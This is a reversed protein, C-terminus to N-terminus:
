ICDSDILFACIANHTRLDEREPPENSVQTDASCRPSVWPSEHARAVSGLSLKSNPTQPIKQRSVEHICSLLPHHHHITVLTLDCNALIRWGGRAGGGKQDSKSGTAKARASIRVTTPVTKTFWPQQIVVLEWNVGSRHFDFSIM